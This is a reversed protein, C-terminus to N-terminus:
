FIVTTEHDEVQRALDGTDGSTAWRALDTETESINRADACPECVVFEELADNERLVELVGAVFPLGPAKLAARDVHSDAGIYTAEQTACVVATDSRSM